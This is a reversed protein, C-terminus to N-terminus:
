CNGVQLAFSKRDPLMSSVDTFGTGDNNKYLKNGSFSYIDIFSDNDFDGWVGGSLYQFPTLTGNQNRYVMGEAYLDVWSDNDFDAWSAKGGGYSGVATFSLLCRQELSELTLPRCYRSVPRRALAHRGPRARSSTRWPCWWSTGSSIAM